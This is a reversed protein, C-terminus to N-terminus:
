FTIQIFEYNFSFEPYLGELETIYESKVTILIAKAELLDLIKKASDLDFNILNINQINSDLFMDNTNSVNSLNFSSIDLNILITDTFMLEMNEVKSTNFSTLVLTDIATVNRFMRRMNVVNKTDFKSLDLKNLSYCMNFMSEMSTVNSTNFKSLDLTVLETCGSFMATMDTVLDTNFNSLNLNKISTGKFMDKMNTVKSTNLKTIDFSSLNAQDFIGQMNIVNSTDFNSMNVESVLQCLRFMYSMDVVNSTNLLDLNEITTLNSLTSFFYRSNTPAYIKEGIIYTKYRDVEDIKEISYYFHVTNKQNVSIDLKTSLNTKTPIEKGFFISTVKERELGFFLQPDGEIETDIAYNVIEYDKIEIPTENKDDQKIENKAYILTFVLGICSGIILLIYLTYSFFKSM